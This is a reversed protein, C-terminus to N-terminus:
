NEVARNSLISKKVKYLYNYTSSTIVISKYIKDNININLRYYQSDKDRLVEIEGQKHMKGLTNKDYSVIIYDNSCNHFIFSVNHNKIIKDLYYKNYLIYKFISFYSHIGEKTIIIDLTYGKPVVFSHNYFNIKLPYIERLDCNYIVVFALLIYFINSINKIM